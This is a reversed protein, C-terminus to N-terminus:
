LNQIIGGLQTLGQVQVMLRGQRRQQAFQLGIARCKPRAQSGAVANYPHILGRDRIPPNPEASGFWGSWNTAM